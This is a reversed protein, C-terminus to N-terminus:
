FFLPNRVKKLQIATEHEEMNNILEAQVRGTSHLRAFDGEMTKFDQFLTAFKGQRV